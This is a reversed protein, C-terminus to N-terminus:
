TMEEIRPSHMPAHACEPPLSALSVSHRAGSPLLFQPAGDLIIGGGGAREREKPGTNKDRNTEKKKGNLEGEENRKSVGVGMAM